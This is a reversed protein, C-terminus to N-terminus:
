TQVIVFFMFYLIHKAHQFVCHIVEELPPRFNEFNKFEESFRKYSRSDKQTKKKKSPNMIEFTFMM